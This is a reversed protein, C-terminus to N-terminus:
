DAVIQRARRVMAEDVLEGDLRIAGEPEASVGDWAELIRVAWSREAPTIGFEAHVLPVQNPHICLVGGFGFDRARRARSVLGEEDGLAFHPSDLPEPLSAAASAIALSVMAHVTHPGDARYSLRLDAHLDAAGFALRLVRAPFDAVSSLAHVGAASEILGIVPVRAKRGAIAEAAAIAADAGSTADGPVFKSLVLGDADGAIAAKVDSVFDATGFPNVRVLVVPSREAGLRAGMAEVTARALGKRDSRVADELDVIIGDAGSRLAKEVRDPRDGPVFLLSRASVIRQDVASLGNATM